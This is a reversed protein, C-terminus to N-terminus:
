ALCGPCAGALSPPPPTPWGRVLGGPCCHLIKWTHVAFFGKQGARWAAGPLRGSFGARWAAGPPRGPFGARRGFGHLGRLPRPTPAPWGRARVKRPVATFDEFHVAFVDSKGPEGRPGPSGQAGVPTGPWFGAAGPVRSEMRVRPGVSLCGGGSDKGLAGRAHGGGGRPSSGSKLGCMKETKRPKRRPSWPARRDALSDPIAMDDGRDPSGLGVRTAARLRRGM